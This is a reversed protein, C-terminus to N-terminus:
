LWFQSEPIALKKSRPNRKMLQAEPTRQGKQNSEGELPNIEWIEGYGLKAELFLSKKPQEV